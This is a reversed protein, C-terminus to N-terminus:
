GGRSVKMNGVAHNLKEAYDVIIPVKSKQAEPVLLSILEEIMAELEWIKGLRDFFTSEPKFIRTCFKLSLEEEWDV